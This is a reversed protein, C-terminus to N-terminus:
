YSNNQLSKYHAYWGQVATKFQSDLDKKGTFGAEEILSNVSTQQLVLRILIFKTHEDLLNLSIPTSWIM